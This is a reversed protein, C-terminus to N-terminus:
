RDHNKQTSPQAPHAQGNGSGSAATLTNLLDQYHRVWRENNEIARETRVSVEGQEKQQRLAKQRHSALRKRYQNLRQQLDALNPSPPTGKVACPDPTNPEERADEHGDADAPTEQNLGSEFGKLTAYPISTDHAGPAKFVWRILRRLGREVRWAITVKLEAFISPEAWFENPLVEIEIESGAEIQLQFYVMGYFVTQGAVTLIIFILGKFRTDTASETKLRENDTRAASLTTGREQNLAELRANRRNLVQALAATKAGSIM